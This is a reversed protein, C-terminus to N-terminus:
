HSLNSKREVGTIKKYATKGPIKKKTEQGRPIKKLKVSCCSRLESNSWLVQRRCSLYLRFRLSSSFFFLSLGPGPVRPTAQRTYLHVLYPTTCGLLTRHDSLIGWFDWIIVSKCHVPLGHITPSILASSFSPPQPPRSLFLHLFFSSSSSSSSLLHHFPSLPDIV